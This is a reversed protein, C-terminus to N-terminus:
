RSWQRDRVIGQLLYKKWICVEFSEVKNKNVDQTRVFGYVAKQKILFTIKM